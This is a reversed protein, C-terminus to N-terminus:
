NHNNQWWRGSWRNFQFIIQIVDLMAIYKHINEDDQTGHGLDNPEPSSLPHACQDGASGSENTGMDHFFEQLAASGDADQIVKRGPLAFVQCAELAVQFDQFAVQTICLGDFGGGCSTSSTKWRAANM